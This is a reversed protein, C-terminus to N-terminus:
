SGTRRAIRRAKEINVVLSDEDHLETVVVGDIALAGRDLAAAFERAKRASEEVAAVSEELRDESIKARRVHEPHMTVHASRTM